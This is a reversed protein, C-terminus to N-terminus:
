FFKISKNNGLVTKHDNTIIMMLESLKIIFIDKADKLFYRGYKSM